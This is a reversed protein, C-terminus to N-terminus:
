DYKKGTLLVVPHNFEHGKQRAKKLGSLALAGEYSARINNKLLYNYQILMEEDSIVFASGDSKNIINIIDKKRPTVRAVIADILSKDKHKFDSDFNQAVPHVSQSQIAYIKPIKSIRKFGEYVGKLITGSSQPIFVADIHPYADNLEYAITQYGTYGIPDASPRLNYINNERCFKICSSVPKPTEILRVSKNKLIERKQRNIKPSIFITLKMGALGAYSAASIAANGSSSLAINKIGEQYLSSVQFAFGRDKVSGTPNQDERKFIVDSIINSPTNAERLSLRYKPDVPPLLSAFKWIGTNSQTNM